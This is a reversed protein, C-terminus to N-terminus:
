PVGTLDDHQGAQDDHDYDQSHGTQRVREGSAAPREAAVLGVLDVLFQVRTAPFV